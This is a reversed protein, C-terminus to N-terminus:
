DKGSYAEAARALLGSRTMGMGAAKRDIMALINRTFSVNVRTPKELIDPAPIRQLATGKPMSNGYRNFDELAAEMVVGYSSPVPVPDHDDALAELHGALADLAMDYAHEPNEGWTQCGPLDPFWVSIRGDEEPAFVAYYM